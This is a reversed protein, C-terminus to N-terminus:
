SGDFLLATSTKRKTGVIQRPTSTADIALFFPLPRACYNRNFDPLFRGEITVRLTAAIM